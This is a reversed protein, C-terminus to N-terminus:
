AYASVLVLLSLTVQWAPPPMTTVGPLLPWPGFDYRSCFSHASDPAVLVFFLLTQKLSEDLHELGILPRVEHVGERQVFNLTCSLCGNPLYAIIALLKLLWAEFSHSLLLKLLLM